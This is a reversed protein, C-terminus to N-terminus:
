VIIFHSVQMKKFDEEAKRRADRVEAEHRLRALEEEQKHNDITYKLSKVEAKLADMERRRQEREEDAEIYSDNLSM